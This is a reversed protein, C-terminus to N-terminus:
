KHFIIVAQEIYNGRLINIFRIVKQILLYNGPPYWRYTNTYIIIFGKKNIISKWINIKKLSVHTIDHDAKQKGNPTIIYAIGNNKLHKIINNLLAEPKKLHEILDFATIVDFYDNKFPYKGSADCVQTKIYKYEKSEHIADKSIDIGFSKLGNKFSYNVFTGNSCGIDLLIRKNSKDSYKNILKIREKLYENELHRLPYNCIEYNSGAGIFYYKDFKNSKGNQLSLRKRDVNPLINQKIYKINENILFFQNKFIYYIKRLGFYKVRDLFNVLQTNTKM